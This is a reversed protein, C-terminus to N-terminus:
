FASIGLPTGLGTPGDFGSVANCLATGCNGNSGATIDRLNTSNGLSYPLIGGYTGSLAYVGAVLPSSLSTGGVKFWGKRGQYRVSSYVAAGTTPDADASVDAIIRGACGGVTPQGVPKTTEYTSCGSGAGSWASESVYNTGSLNLRTGGVATVFPSAAPYSTGYGSDGSSFTIAGGFGSFYSDYATEGSFEISGYSNSIVNAGMAQARAVATMLDSYSASNAEVLLINCNQCIAHAVEVDLATELAWGSDTRPYNTGGNQDVKRLCPSASVSCSPLTPIGFTSSYISLDSLINPNDYADVIAITPNGSATGSLGYAGRFEFPGYGAPKTSTQPKGQSDVVVRAFCRFADKPSGPCVPIHSLGTESVAFSSKAVLFGVVLLFVFVVVGFFKRM